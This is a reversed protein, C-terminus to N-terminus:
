SSDPNTQNLTGFFISKGTFSLIFLCVASTAPSDLMRLAGLLSGPIRLKERSVVYAFMELSISDLPTFAQM